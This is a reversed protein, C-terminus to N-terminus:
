RRKAAANTGFIELWGPPNVSSSSLTGDANLQTPVGFIGANVIDGLLLLLTATARLVGNFWGHKIRM